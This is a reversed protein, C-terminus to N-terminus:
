DRPKTPVIHIGKKSYHIKGWNTPFKEGTKMDVYYGIFERFNVIERYGPTGPKANGERIGKGAFNYGLNQPNSHKMISKRKRDSDQAFNKHGEIHKGQKDWEIRLNSKQLINKRAEARRAAEFTIAGKNKEGIVAGEFTLLHNARKLKRYANVAKAIGASAFLDVGYKGIVYGTIEGRKQNEIGDWNEFLEKLEPVLESLSEKPTHTRIFDICAKAAEVLDLSVQVPDESFAWLGHGLGYLSSLMSPIFEIGAQNGGLFVGKALGISFIALENADSPIPKSLIGSTLYDELSSDIDGLEFYAVARQFYAEKNKPDKQLIENLIKLAQEYQNTESYGAALELYFDSSQTDAAKLVKKVKGSDILQEIQLVAEAANGADLLLLGNQFYFEPNKPFDIKQYLLRLREQVDEWGTHLIVQVGAQNRYLDQVIRQRNTLESEYDNQSLSGMKKEREAQVKLKTILKMHDRINEGFSEDAWWFLYYFGRRFSAYDQLNEVFREPWTLSCLSYEYPSMLGLQCTQELYDQTVSEIDEIEYEYEEPVYIAANIALHGSLIIGLTWRINM